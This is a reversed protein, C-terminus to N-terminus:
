SGNNTDGTLLDWIWVEFDLVFGLSLIGVFYPELKSRFRAEIRAEFVFGLM